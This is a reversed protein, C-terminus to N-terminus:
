FVLKLGFQIQRSTTTTSTLRTASPVVGGRVDFINLATTGGPSPAQFNARNFLNFVEARFSIVKTEMLSFDKRLSFDFDALGPGTVTNRGLNGYFGLAAAEFSSVDLYSDANQAHIPNHNAGPKLNPREGTTVTDQNRDGSVGLTFPSGSAIKAIGGLNWGRVLQGRAGTLSQGFPLEYNYSLSLNHRTDLDALANDRGRDFPDYSQTQASAFSNGRNLSLQDINKSFTYSLQFQLGQSLRKNLGILLSDFHGTGDANTNVMQSFNKNPRSLGPRFFKQGNVIEPRPVNAQHVRYLKVHKAGAYGATFVLDKRLERQINLNYQMSYSTGFRYNPLRTQPLSLSLLAQPMFPFPIADGLSTQRQAVNFFPPNLAFDSVYLDQAIQNYFIGFGGRVATKENRFPAWAFGLRPALSSLSPNEAFVAGVTITAQPDFPDKVNSIKGNVESPMSTFEYRFGANLTLDPKVKMDDQVYFGYLSHRFGRETGGTQIVADLIRPSGQLFAALSEFDFAGTSRSQNNANWLTRNFEAGLSLAHIGASYYLQDSYQPGTLAYAAPFSRTIGTPNTVGPITYGALRARGEINPPPLNASASAEPVTSDFFRALGFRFVNIVRSSLTKREEVTLFQHRSSEIGKYIPLDSFFERRSQDFTYRAFVSDNDTLAHDIRVVFFNENLPFKNEFAFEGVGNGFNRGTNPLPWVNLYPAVAPNVNIAPRGPLIGRRANEDPVNALNTASLRDRLGEYSTMFFTRNRAIPGDLVFGFQNRKFPPKKKGDFFNRADLASNRLFEFATGHFDNTGSKTVISIRGGSSRGFEASYNNVLVRFERITDVGLTNGSLGGPNVNDKNNIVTGDLTYTNSNMRAGAVSLKEGRGIGTLENNAKTMLLVGPQLTALQFYNRGNLPLDQIRRTDVVGGLAMGTTEVQPAEGTVEVQETIQGVNLTFDVMVQQGVMLTIGRRVATQFGALEARVEWNGLPLQPIHYRGRDDTLATQGSGTDVHTLTVSAGPLVGGTADKVLGSIGGTSTQAFVASGATVVIAIGAIGLFAACLKQRKM